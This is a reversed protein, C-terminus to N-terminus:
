EKVFRSAAQKLEELTLEGDADADVRKFIKTRGPSEEVPKNTYEQLTLIGDRNQDRVKFFKDSIPSGSLKTPTRPKAKPAATSEGKAGISESVPYEANIGAFYDLLEAKLSAYVEPLDARLDTQEVPDHCLDFLSLDTNGIDNILAEWDPTTDRGVDGWLKYDGKRLGLNGWLDFIMTREPVAEKGASTTHPILSLGRMPNKGNMEPLPIHAADLLTAFIDAHMVQDDSVIGEPIRGKWNILFPVSLGGQFTTAKGGRYQGNDGPYRGGAAGEEMTCGGNDSVFVILTNDAAELEDLVDVLKGVHHDM